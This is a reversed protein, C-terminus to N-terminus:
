SKAYTTGVWAEDISLMELAVGGGNKDAGYTFIETWTTGGDTTGFIHAGPNGGDNSFGEGVAM